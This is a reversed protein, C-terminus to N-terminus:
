DVSGSVILNREFNWDIAYAEMSHENLLQLETWKSEEKQGSDRICM